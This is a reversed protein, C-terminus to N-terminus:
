KPSNAELSACALDRCAFLIRHALTEDTVARSVTIGGVLLAILALARDAQSPGFASDPLLSGLASAVEDLAVGFAERAKAGARPLESLLPSLACGTEVAQRHDLSLYSVILSEVRQVENGPGGEAIRGLRSERLSTVLVELFLAEKSPFHAYFGGATLGAEAMVKDVSGAQFGDRRFVVAAADLIKLRTKAKRDAPYRM